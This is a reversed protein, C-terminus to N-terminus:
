NEDRFEKLKVFALIFMSILLSVLAIPISMGIIVPGIGKEPLGLYDGAVMATLWYPLILVAGIGTAIGTLLIVVQLMFSVAFWKVFRGKM